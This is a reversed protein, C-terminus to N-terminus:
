KLIDDLKQELESEKIIPIKPEGDCCSRLGKRDTAYAEDNVLVYAEVYKLNLRSAAVTAPGVPVTKESDKSEPLDSAVLMVRPYIGKQIQYGSLGCGLAVGFLAMRDQLYAVLEKDNTIQRFTISPYRTKIAQAIKSENGAYIIDETTRQITQEM